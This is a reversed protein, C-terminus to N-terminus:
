VRNREIAIRMDRAAASPDANDTNWFRHLVDYFAARMATTMAMSTAPMVQGGGRSLGAAMLACPDYGALDVDDRVPLGGKVLNFDHQIEPSMTVRAFEDQAARTGASTTRPMCFADVTALFIGDNGPAARCAYDQEPRMGAQNLAGRAWDGSFYLAAKNTALLNATDTWSRGPSGPDVFPKLRAFIEFAAVMEPGGAVSLDHEVVFRRAADAGGVGVLIMFFVSGEQWAQGGFAIPIVGSRRLRPCAELVEPWTAPLNVGASHLRGINAFTWNSCHLDVPVAVYKGDVKLRDAIEKPLVADWEGAAAVPQIDRIVEDRYLEPLDPGVFWLMVTPPDGGLVRTIAATKALDPGQVATDIWVMGEAEVKRRIIRIAASESGGTWYHVVEIQQGSAGAPVVPAATGAAAALLRRRSILPWAHMSM